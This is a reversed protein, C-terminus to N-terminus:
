RLSPSQYRTPPQHSGSRVESGSSLIQWGLGFVNVGHFRFTLGTSSISKIETVLPGSTCTPMGTISFGITSSGTCNGANITLTYSGNDLAGYTIPVSGPGATFTASRVTTGSGNKIAWSGSTIGSGSYVFSLGTATPSNVSALTPGSACPGTGLNYSTTAYCGPTNSFKIKINVLDNPVIGEVRLWEGWLHPLDNWYWINAGQTLEVSFNHSTTSTDVSASLYFELADGDKRTSDISLDCVGSCCESFHNFLYQEVWERTAINGSTPVTLNPQALAVLSSIALYLSLLFRKM